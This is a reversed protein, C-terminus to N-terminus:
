KILHMSAIHTCRLHELQHSAQLLHDHRLVSDVVLTESGQRLGEAMVGVQPLNCHKLDPNVPDPDLCNASDPYMDLSNHIPIWFLTKHCIRQDLFTM